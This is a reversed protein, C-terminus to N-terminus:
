SNADEARKEAAREPDIIDWDALTLCDECVADNGVARGGGDRCTEYGCRCCLHGIGANLWDAPSLTPHGDFTPTRDAGIDHYRSCFECDCDEPLKELDASDVEECVMECSDESLWELKAEHESPARVFQWNFEGPTGVVWALMPPASPAASIVPVVSPLATVAAVAGARKLIERRTLNM